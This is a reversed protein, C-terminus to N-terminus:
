CASYQPHYGPLAPGILYRGDPRELFLTISQWDTCSSNTASQSPSQYSIFSLTAGTVGSGYDTISVLMEQSDTTSSYGSEFKQLTWYQRNAPMM